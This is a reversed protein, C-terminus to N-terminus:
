RGRGQGLIKQMTKKREEYYSKIKDASLIFYKEREKGTVNFKVGTVPETIAFPKDINTGFRQHVTVPIQHNKIFDKVSEELGKTIGNQYAEGILINMQKETADKGDNMGQNYGTEHSSERIEKLDNKYQEKLKNAEQEYQRKLNSLAKIHQADKETIQNELKSVDNKAQAIQTNLSTM